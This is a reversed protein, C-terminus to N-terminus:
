QSILKRLVSDLVTAAVFGATVAAVSDHQPSFLALVVGNVALPLLFRTLEWRFGTTALPIESVLVWSWSLGFQVLLPWRWESESMFWVATLAVCWIVFSVSLRTVALTAEKQRFAKMRESSAGQEQRIAEIQEPPVASEQLAILHVGAKASAADCRTAARYIEFARARDGEQLAEVVKHVLEQPVRNRSMEDGGFLQIRRERRAGGLAWLGGMTLLYVTIWETEVVYAEWVSAAILKALFFWSFVISVIGAAGLLLLVRPSLPLPQRVASLRFAPRGEVKADFVLQALFLVIWFQLAWDQLNKVYATRSGPVRVAEPHTALWVLYQNQQWLWFSLAALALLVLAGISALALPRRRIWQEVKRSASVPRALVPERNLFRGLDEALERATAYRRQPSKELCKLCITEVEVPVGDNLKRPAVPEEETVKLLTAHVTQAQFPPRGTLLAYLIAGMSYVDSHPGIQDHRGLAQEPSMYSPTGIVAGIITLGPERSATKALGFDTIRPQGAADILVNSPKLDRHLTARQHAFHIAEAITKVYTAAMVAPVPKERVIDALNRGEVLDMSFYHQGEHEGIEHIAVINPHQLNAAAEAETHFRKIADADALAGAVIMKVAVPRNLTVQRAKYVVGMGGRAIEEQIEYDGFYRITPTGFTGSPPEAALRTVDLGRKLLCAPCLGEATDPAVNLASARPRCPRGESM